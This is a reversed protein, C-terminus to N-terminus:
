CVKRLRLSGILVVLLLAGLSILSLEDITASLNKGLIEAFNGGILIFAIVALYKQYNKLEDWYFLIIVIMIAEFGFANSSTFALLPIMGVILGFDINAGVPISQGKAFLFLLVLGTILLVVAQLYLASVGASVLYYFPTYRAVVSFLTLNGSDLLSQKASLEVKLEYIWANMESFMLDFSGYFVVPLFFFILMGVAMWLLVKIDKKYIFYPIFILSFPKIYFSAALLLGAIGKKRNSYSVLILIYIFLLLHNVQGLHLERLFHIATIPILLLIIRNAKKVDKRFIEPDINKILLVYGTVMVLSLFVWYVVKATDFSFVTFPIFFLASAPSYKFIYHGDDSHRYLTVGDMLRSAAKYYVEFDSLWFRDNIIELMMFIMCIAFFVSPGIYKSRFFSGLNAM